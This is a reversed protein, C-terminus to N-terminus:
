QEMDDSEKNNPTATLCICSRNEILETFQQTYGLISEDAEDVLILEGELLKVTDLSCHYEVNTQLQLYSWHNRYGKEDRAM